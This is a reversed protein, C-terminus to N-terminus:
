KNQGIWWQDLNQNRPKGRAFQGEFEVVNVVQYEGGIATQECQAIVPVDMLKLIGVAIPQLVRSSIKILVIAVFDRGADAHGPAWAPKVNGRLFTDQAQAITM